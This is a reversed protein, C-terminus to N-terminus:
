NASSAKNRRTNHCHFAVTQNIQTSHQYTGADYLGAVNTARLCQVAAFTTTLGVGVLRLHVACQTPARSQQASQKPASMFTSYAPRHSSMRPQVPYRRISRYRDPGSGLVNGATMPCATKRFSPAHLIAIPRYQPLRTVNDCNTPM